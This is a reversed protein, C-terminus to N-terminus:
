FIFNVFCFAVEMQLVKRGGNQARSLFYNRELKIKHSRIIFKQSLNCLNLVNLESGEPMNDRTTSDGQPHFCAGRFRRDVDIQSCQLIDWFFRFKM